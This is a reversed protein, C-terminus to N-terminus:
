KAGEKAQTRVAVPARGLVRAVTQPHWKGGRKSPIGEANLAACIARISDGKEGMERIRAIVAQEADNPVLAKDHSSQGYAPSGYAFGGKNAKEARGGQLRKTIVAREYQAVAGLVQRILARMEDDGASPETVSVVQRGARELQEIWTEQMALKRALRDLRYVALADARGDHLEQFAAALGPRTDLGNSGSIGEDSYWAVVRHGEAKAWERIARRQMDLGLGKEAQSDTSVRLYEIVKM